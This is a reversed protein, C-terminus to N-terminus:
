FILPSYKKLKKNLQNSEPLVEKLANWFQKGHNKHITHTLEHLIVYDILENPLRMLHINLNINNQSSCSGWRTKINKLFLRNYRFGFKEALLNVREPLFIKAEIRLTEIIGAKVAEQIFKEYVDYKAPYQIIVETKNISVHVNTSAGRKIILKHNATKFNTKEDFVTQSNEIQKIKTLHKLIWEEKSRAFREGEAFSVNGPIVVTVGKYPKINISLHKARNSKRIIIKDLSNIKITKVNM